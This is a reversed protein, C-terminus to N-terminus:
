EFPTFTENSHFPERMRIFKEVSWFPNLAM